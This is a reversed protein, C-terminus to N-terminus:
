IKIIKLLLFLWDLSLQSVLLLENYKTIWGSQYTYIVGSVLFSTRPRFPPRQDNTKTPFNFFLFSTNTVSQRKIKEIKQYWNLQLPTINKSLLTCEFKSSFVVSIVCSNRANKSWIKIINVGSTFSCCVRFLLVILKMTAQTHKIFSSQVFFFTPM